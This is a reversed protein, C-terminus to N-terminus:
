VEYIYPKMQVDVRDIEIYKGGLSFYSGSTISHKYQTTPGTSFLVVYFLESGTTYFSAIVSDRRYYIKKCYGMVYETKSKKNYWEKMEDQSAFVDSLGGKCDKSYLIGSKVSLPISNIKFKSDPKDFFNPELNLISDLIPSTPIEYGVAIIKKLSM